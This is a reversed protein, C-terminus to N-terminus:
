LALIAARLDTALRSALYACGDANPHINDSGIYTAANAVTQWPGDTSSPAMSKGSSNVWGGDINDVFIWRGGAAALAAQIVAAKDLQAASAPLVTPPQWPGLAVLVADPLRARLDVYYTSVAAAFGAKAADASAYPPLAVDNNDNLSGATVLLDPQSAVISALRADFANGSLLTDATSPNAAYGTGGLADLDVHPINLALAAQYFLGGFGWVTTPAGGYSDSIAAFSAEASRNWPEVTDGAAVVLACAGQSALMYLSINRTASTGFDFKLMTNRGSIPGSTSANLQVLPDTANACAVYKGDVVLTVANNAGAVLVEFATGAHVFHLGTRGSSGLTQAMHNRSVPIVAQGSIVGAAQPWLERLYGYVQPITALNSTGSQPLPPFYQADSGFSSDASNAVGQTIAVATTGEVVPATTALAAQLRSLGPSTPPPPPVPPPPVPPPPAPPPPPSPPTSAPPAPIPLPMPDNGTGGGGCASLAPLTAVPAAVLAFLRQLAGRRSSPDLGEPPQADNM